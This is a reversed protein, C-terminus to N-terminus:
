TEGFSKSIDQKTVYYAPILASFFSLIFLGLYTIAVLDWPILVDYGPIQSGQTLFVSLMGIFYTGLVTGIVVGTLLLLMGEVFFLLGTQSLKMGIARETYIERKRDNIQM